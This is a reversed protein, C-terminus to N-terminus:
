AITGSLAFFSSAVFLFHGKFGFLHTTNGPSARKVISDSAFITMLVIYFSSSRIAIGLDTPSRTDSSGRFTSIKPSIVCLLASFMCCCNDSTIGGSFRSSSSNSFQIAMSFGICLLYTYTCFSAAYRAYAICSLSIM